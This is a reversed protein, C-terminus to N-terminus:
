EELKHCSKGEDKTAAPLEKVEAQELGPPFSHAIRAEPNDFKLSVNYLEFRGGGACEKM